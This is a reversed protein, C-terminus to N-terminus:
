DHPGKAAFPDFRAAASIERLRQRRGDDSGMARLQAWVSRKAAGPAPTAPPQDRWRKERLYRDPALWYRPDPKAARQVALRELLVPLPPLEPDALWARQAAMEAEQRPYGSFWAAFEAHRDRQAPAPGPPRAATPSSPPSGGVAPPAVADASGDQGGGAAAAAAHIAGGAPVAYGAAAARWAAQRKRFRRQREANLARRRREREQPPVAARRDGPSAAPAPGGRVPPVAPSLAEGPRCRQSGGFPPSPSGAAAAAGPASMCGDAHPAAHGYRMVRPTVNHTIYRTVDLTVDGREAAHRRRFRRQREANAARRAAQREGEWTVALSLSTREGEPVPRTPPLPGPLPAHGYRKYREPANRYHTVAEDEDRDPTVSVTIDRPVDGWRAGDGVAAGLGPAEGPAEGSTPQYVEYDHVRYHDGADIWSPRAANTALRMALEMARHESLGPLLSPLVLKPILGDTRYRNCYGLGAVFLALAEHGAQVFKPHHAMGDDLRVWM